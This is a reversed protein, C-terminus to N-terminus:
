MQFSKLNLKTNKTVLLLAEHNEDENDVFVDFGLRECKEVTGISPDIIDLMELNREKCVELSFEAFCALVKGKLPHFIDPNGEVRDLELSQSNSKSLSIRVFGCILDASRLTVIFSNPDQKTESYYDCWLYEWNSSVLSLDDNEAIALNIEFKRCSLREGVRKCAAVIDKDLTRNVSTM